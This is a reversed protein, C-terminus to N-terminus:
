EEKNAMRRLESDDGSQAKEYADVLERSKEEGFGERPGLYGAYGLSGPSVAADDVAKADKFGYFVRAFLWLSVAATIFYVFTLSLSWRTLSGVVVVTIASAALALITSYRHLPRSKEM